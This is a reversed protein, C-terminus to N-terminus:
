SSSSSSSSLTVSQADAADTIIQITQTTNKPDPVVAIWVIQNQQDLVWSSEIPRPEIIVLEM